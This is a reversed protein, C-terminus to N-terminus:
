SRGGQRHAIAAEVLETIRAFNFPKMVFDFAGDTLLRRGLQEDTSATVVIVPAFASLAKIAQDGTLAGPMYLDLLIVDPRRERAVALAGVATEAVEVDYGEADLGERLVARVPEEDDVVLVKSRTPPM